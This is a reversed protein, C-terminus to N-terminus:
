YNFLIKKKHNKKKHITIIYVICLYLSNIYNNDYNYFYLYIHHSQNLLKLTKLESIKM